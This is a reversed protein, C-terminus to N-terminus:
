SHLPRWATHARQLARWREGQPYRKDPGPEIDEDTTVHQNLLDLIERKADRSEKVTVRAARVAADRQKLRNIWREIARANFELGRRRRRTSIVVEIQDADAESLREVAQGLSAGAEFDADTLRKPAVAIDIKTVFGASQIKAHIGEDIKPVLEILVPRDHEYHALYDAMAAARVGYHNYQVACWDNRSDWLFATEEGFGEDPALQFGSAPVNEGARSPGHHTRVKVFDAFWIRHVQRVSEIRLFETREHRNRSGLPSEAIDHLRAALDFDAPKRLKYLDIRM